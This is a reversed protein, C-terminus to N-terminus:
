MVEINFWKAPDFPTGAAIYAEIDPLVSLAMSTSVLLRRLIWAGEVGILRFYDAVAGNAEGFHAVVFEMNADLEGPDRVLTKWGSPTEDTHFQLFCEDHM